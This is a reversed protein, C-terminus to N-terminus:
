EDGARKIINKRIDVQNNNLDLMVSEKRINASVSTRGKREGAVAQEHTGQTQNQNFNVKMISTYRMQLITELLNDGSACFGGFPNIDSIEM